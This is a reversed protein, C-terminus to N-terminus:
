PFENKGHKPFQISEARSSINLFGIIKSHKNKETSKGTVHSNAKEM